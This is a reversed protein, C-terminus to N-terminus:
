QTDVVEQKKWYRSNNSQLYRVCTQLSGADQLRLTQKKAWLTSSNLSSVVPKSCRTSLAALVLAGGVVIGLENSCRTDRSTSNQMASHGVRSNQMPLWPVGFHATLPVVLPLWEPVFGSWLEEWQLEKTSSNEPAQLIQIYGLESCDSDLLHVQTVGIQGGQSWQTTRDDNRHDPTECHTWYHKFLGLPGTVQEASREPHTLQTGLASPNAIMGKRTTTNMRTSALEPEWESSKIQGRFPFAYTGEAAKAVWAQKSRWWIQLSSGESPMERFPEGFQWKRSEECQWCQLVDRSCRWRDREYDTVCGIKICTAFVKAVATDQGNDRGKYPLLQGLRPSRNWWTPSTM